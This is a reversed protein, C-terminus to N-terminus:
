DFRILTRRVKRFIRERTILRPLTIRRPRRDTNLADVRSWLDVDHDVWELRGHCVASRGSPPVHCCKLWCRRMITAGASAPLVLLRRERFTRRERSFTRGRWDPATLQDWEDVWRLATGGRRVQSLVHILIMYVVLVNFIVCWYNFVFNLVLSSIFVYPALSHIHPIETTIIFMYVTHVCRTM